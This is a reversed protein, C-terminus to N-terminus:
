ETNYITERILKTCESNFVNNAIYKYGYGQEILQCIYNIQAASHIAYSLDEGVKRLGTNFAHQINEQTTCWELNSLMNNTKDGDIHNVEFKDPNNIPCFTMMVLRHINCYIRSDDKTRLQVSVYGTTPSVHGDLIMDTKSNYIRGYNSVMYDPRIIDYNVIRWDEDLFQIPYIYKRSEFKSM